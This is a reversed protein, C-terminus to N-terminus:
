QHYLTAGAVMGERRHVTNKRLCHTFLYTRRQTAKTFIKGHFCFSCGICSMNANIIQGCDFNPRLIGLFGAIHEQTRSVNSEAEPSFFVMPVSQIPCNKM